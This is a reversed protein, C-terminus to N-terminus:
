NRLSRPMLRLSKDTTPDANVVARTALSSYCVQITLGVKVGRNCLSHRKRRLLQYDQRLRDPDHRLLQPISDLVRSCLRTHWYCAQLEFHLIRGPTVPLTLLHLHPLSSLFLGVQGATDIIDCDYEVGKYM